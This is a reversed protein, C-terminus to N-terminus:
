EREIKPLSEYFMCRMSFMRFRASRSPDPRRVSTRVHIPHPSPVAVPRGGALQIFEVSEAEWMFDIAGPLWHGM